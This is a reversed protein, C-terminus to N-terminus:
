QQIINNSVTAIVEKTQANIIIGVIECNQLFWSSNAQYEVSKEIFNGKAPVSFPEGWVGNIAERLVHNHEYDAAVSGGDMQAGIIKNEIILLILNYNESTENKAYIKSNIVIKQAEKNTRCSIELNLPMDLTIRKAIASTWYTRDILLKNNYPLFDVTGVPFEAPKGFFKFYETAANSRLDLANGKPETWHSNFPHLSVVVLKEGATQQLNHAIRAADPCNTCSWGTFDFLLVSKKFSSLDTPLTRENEPILSCGFVLVSIILPFFLKKM